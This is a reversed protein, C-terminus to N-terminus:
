SSCVVLQFMQKFKWSLAIWMLCKEKEIIVGTFVCKALFKRMSCIDIWRSLKVNEEFLKEEKEILNVSIIIM